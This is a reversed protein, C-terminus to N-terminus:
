EEPPPIRIPGDPEGPDPLPDVPRSETGGAEGPSIVVGVEKTITSEGGTFNKIWQGGGTEGFGGMRGGGTGYPSGGGPDPGPPTDIAGEEYCDFYKAINITNALYSNDWTIDVTITQSEAGSYVYRYSGGRAGEVAETREFGLEFLLLYELEEYSKIAEVISSPKAYDPHLKSLFLTQMNPAETVTICKLIKSAVVFAAIANNLQSLFSDYSGYIGALYDAFYSNFRDNVENYNCPLLSLREYEQIFERADALQDLVTIFYDVLTDHVAIELRYFIPTALAGLSGVPYDYSLGFAEQDDFYMIATENAPSEIIGFSLIPNEVTQGDVLGSTIGTNFDYIGILEFSTEIEPSAPATATGGVSFRSAPAGVSRYLLAEDFLIYNNILDRFFSEDESTSPYFVSGFISNQLVLTRINVYWLGSVTVAYDPQDCVDGVISENYEIPSIASPLETPDFENLVSDRESCVSFLSYDSVVYDGDPIYNAAVSPGAMIGWDFSDVDIGYNQAIADMDWFVYAYFELFGTQGANEDGTPLDINITFPIYYTDPTGNSLATYYYQSIDAQQTETLYDELPTDVISWGPTFELVERNLTSLIQVGSEELYNFENETTVAVVRLTLFNTVNLLSRTVSQLLVDLFSGGAATGAGDDAFAALAAQSFSGGAFWSTTKFQDSISDTLEVTLVASDYSYVEGAVESTAVEINSITPEPALGPIGVSM